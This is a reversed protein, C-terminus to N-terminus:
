SLGAGSCRYPVALDTLEVVALEPVALGLTDGM